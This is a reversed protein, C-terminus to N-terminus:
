ALARMDARYCNLLWVVAVLQGAIMGYVWDVPSLLAFGYGLLATVALVLGNVLLVRAQRAAFVFYGALVHQALCLMLWVGFPLLVPLVKEALPESLYIGLLPQGLLALVVLIVLGLLVMGGIFRGTQVWYARRDAAYARAFAPYLAMYMGVLVTAGLNFLKETAAYAASTEADALSGVVVTGLTTSAVLLLQSLVIPTDKVLTSWVPPMDNSSEGLQACSLRARWWSGVGLLTQPLILVLVVLLGLLGPLATSADAILLVLGLVVVSAVVGMLAFHVGSKFDGRAQLFWNSNLAYGVLLVAFVWVYTQAQGLYFYGLVFLLAVPVSLLRKCRISNKWLGAAGGQNQALAAPGSWTFGFQMVLVLYYVYVQAVLVTSVVQADVVRILTPIFAVGSLGLLGMLLLQWVPAPIRDVLAAMTKTSGNLTIPSQFLCGAAYRKM